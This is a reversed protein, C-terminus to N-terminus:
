LSNRDVFRYFRSLRGSETEDQYVLALNEADFKGFFEEWPITEIEEHDPATDPFQFRLIGADEDGATTAVHAPEGGREEAWERITDHDTTADSHEADVTVTETDSM